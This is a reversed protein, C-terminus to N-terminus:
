PSCFHKHAGKKNDGMALLVLGGVLLGVLVTSLILVLALPFNHYTIFRIVPLKTLM